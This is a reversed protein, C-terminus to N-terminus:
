WNIPTPQAGFFRYPLDVIESLWVIISLLIILITVIFIEKNEKNERDM